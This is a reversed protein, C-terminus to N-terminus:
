AQCFGPFPVTCSCCLPQKQVRHCAQPHFQPLVIVGGVWGENRVTLPSPMWPQTDDIPDDRVADMRPVQTKNGPALSCACSPFAFSRRTSKVPVICKSKYKKDQKTRYIARSSIPNIGPLTHSIRTSEQNLSTLPKCVLQLQLPPQPMVQEPDRVRTTQGEGEHWCRRTSSSRCLTVLRDTRQPSKEQLSKLGQHTNSTSDTHTVTEYASFDSTLIHLDPM